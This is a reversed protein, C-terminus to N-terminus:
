SNILRSGKPRENVFTVTLGLPERKILEQDLDIPNDIYTYAPNNANNNSDFRFSLVTAVVNSLRDLNRDNTIFNYFTSLNPDKYKDFIKTLRDVILKKSIAFFFEKKDTIIEAYDSYDVGVNDCIKKLDDHNTLDLKLDFKALEDKFKPNNAVRSNVDTISYARPYEETTNKSFLRIPDANKVVSCNFNDEWDEKFRLGKVNKNQAYVLIANTFSLHPNNGWVQLVQNLSAFDEPRYLSNFRRLQNTGLQTLEYSSVNAFRNKTVM